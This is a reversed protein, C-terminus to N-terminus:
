GSPSFIGFLRLERNLSRILPLAVAIRTVKKRSHKRARKKDREVGLAERAMWCSKLQVFLSSDDTLLSGYVANQLHKLVDPILRKMMEREERKKHIWPQLIQYLGKLSKVSHYRKNMADKIDDLWKTMGNVFEDENIKEDNDIDFEKMIEACTSNNEDSQLKNNKIEQLFDNLESSSIVNDGDQDKERFLKKHDIRQTIWKRELTKRKDSKPHPKSRRLGFARTKHVDFAEKSDFARLRSSHYFFYCLLFMISVALTILLFNTQGDNSLNLIAPVQIMALPVVSLLVIRSTQSTFSATVVGYNQHFAKSQWTHCVNGMNADTTLNFVWSAVRSWNICM